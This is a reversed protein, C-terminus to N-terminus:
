SRLVKGLCAALRSHSTREAALTRLSRESSKSRTRRLEAIADKALGRHLRMRRRLVAEPPSSSREWDPVPGDYRCELANSEQWSVPAVFVEM